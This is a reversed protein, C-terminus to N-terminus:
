IIRCKLVAKLFSGSFNTHIDDVRRQLVLFGYCQLIRERFIEVFLCKEVKNLFEVIFYLDIFDIKFFGIFSEPFANAQKINKSKFHQFDVRQFLEEDIKGILFQLLQIHGVYEFLFLVLKQLFAEFFEWMIDAELVVFWDNVKEFEVGETKKVEDVFGRWQVGRIFVERVIDDSAMGAVIKDNNGLCFSGHKGDTMWAWRNGIFSCTKCLSVFILKRLLQHINNHFTLILNQFQYNPPLLLCFFSPPLSAFLKQPGLEEFIHIFQCLLQVWGIAMEDTADFRVTEFGGSFEIGLSDQSTQPIETDKVGNQDSFEAVNIPSGELFEDLFEKFYLLIAISPSM